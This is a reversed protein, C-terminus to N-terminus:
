WDHVGDEEKFDIWNQESVTCFGCIDDYDHSFLMDIDAGEIYKFIDSGFAEQYFLPCFRVLHPHLDDMYQEPDINM